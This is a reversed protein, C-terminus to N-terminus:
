IWQQLNACLVPNLGISFPSDTMRMLMTEDRTWVHTRFQKQCREPSVNYYSLIVRKVGDYDITGGLDTCVARTKGKLLPTLLLVWEEKDIEQIGMIVELAELFDQIDENEQFPTMRLHSDSTPKRERLAQLQDQM